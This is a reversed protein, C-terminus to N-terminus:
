DSTRHNNSTKLAIPSYQRRAQIHKEAEIRLEEQSKIKGSHLWADIEVKLFMIRRGRKHFPILHNSTWGYVTQEAPHSPLYARLEDLNLWQEESVVQTKGSLGDIKVDIETLKDMMWSMAGPMEDFTIKKEAM